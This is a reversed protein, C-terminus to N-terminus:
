RAVSARSLGNGSAAVPDLGITSCTSLPFSDSWFYADAPLLAASSTALAGNTAEAVLGREGAPAEARVFSWFVPYMETVKDALVPDSDTSSAWVMMSAAVPGASDAPIWTSVPPSSPWFTELGDVSHLSSIPIRAAITMRVYVNPVTTEIINGITAAIKPSAEVSDIM